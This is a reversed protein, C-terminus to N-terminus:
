DAKEAMCDSNRNLHKRINEFSAGAKLAEWFAMKYSFRITAYGEDTKKIKSALLNALRTAQGLLITDTTDDEAYPDNPLCDGCVYPEGQEAWVDVDVAIDERIEYLNGCEDCTRTVTSM